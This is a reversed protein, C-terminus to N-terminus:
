RASTEGEVLEEVTCGLVHAIRIANELTLRREGSEYRSVNAQDTGLMQALESQRLGRKERIAKITVKM